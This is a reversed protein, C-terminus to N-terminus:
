RPDNQLRALLQRNRELARALDADTLVPEELEVLQSAPDAATGVRGVAEQEGIGGSRLPGGAQLRHAVAGVAELQGLPVELDPTGALHEALALGAEAVELETSQGPVLRHHHLGALDGLPQEVGVGVEFAVLLQAGLDLVQEAVGHVEEELASARRPRM